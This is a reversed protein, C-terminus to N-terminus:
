ERTLDGIISKVRNAIVKSVVKAIVNSLCIPRFHAITAPNEEKSLLCIMSQNMSEPMTRTCFVELVFKTLSTEVADWCKQFFSAPIGDPGCAKNPGLQFTAVKVEQVMVERNIWWLANCKIRPFNWESPCFSISNDKAYLNVYFERTM